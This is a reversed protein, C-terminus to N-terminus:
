SCKASCTSCLSSGGSALPGHCPRTWCRSCAFMHNSCSNSALFWLGQHLQADSFPALMTHADEFARSLYAVTIAPQGLEDWYDRDIDWHWAPDTVPHDFVYAIWDEFSLDGIQRGM